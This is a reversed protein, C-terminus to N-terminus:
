FCKPWKKAEKKKINKKIFIGRARTKEGKREGKREGMREVKREGTREM